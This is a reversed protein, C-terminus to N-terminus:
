KQLLSIDAIGMFLNRLENILAFRNNRIKEDEANVMVSDFFQNVPNKLEALKEKM